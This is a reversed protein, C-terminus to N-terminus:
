QKFHMKISRHILLIFLLLGVITYIYTPIMSIYGVVSGEPISPMPINRYHYSAIMFNITGTLNLAFVMLTTIFAFYWGWKKQKLLGTGSILAFTPILIKFFFTMSFFYLSESFNSYLVSGIITFFILPALSLMSQKFYERKIGWRNLTERNSKARYLIYGLWFLVIGSIYFARWNLWDM